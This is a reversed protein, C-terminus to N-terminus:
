PQKERSADFTDAWSKPSALDPLATKYQNSLTQWERALRLHLALSRKLLDRFLEPDRKYWSASTGDAASVLASDFQSLLWWKLDLHAINAEPHERALDRMPMVQRFAGIAMTKVRGITGKPATPARGKRPPKKRRAPPFADLDAKSQSDAYNKRLANLEPLRHLVDRHMREPGELIDEIAMLGMEAPSYQMSFLHKVQTEFSEFILRGGREYPSHLLAAVIRNRRHFYAQWDITDDKEHWPVHWVAMGPLTVTPFGAEGARLGFEADDWKIFMPLSLGIERIVRTPILCMWWGNYDVDIRRHLWTTSQLSRRSFNHGHVTNPAAGWFWRYKAVTEGYAHMVSRDFLSFMQGGVITASKALDAFAVARLIGEPECVVDDDLLLVYDADGKVTAEDMSRSFGGSGGLNGQVIYRLKPGLAKAATEYLEHDSVRQTGQDVVYIEDLVALVDPEQSLSILQDVCFEPRNYTTIGISVKGPKLKETEVAWVAEHLTADEGGAQLDFWYWGGDIFPKLPLDFVLTQPKRSDFVASDARQVHGKATSRSVVVRGQGSVRMVLRVAEFPTWRRWYSAPFANFYTGFTLRREPRVIATGEIVRGHGSIDEVNDPNEDYSTPTTDPLEGEELKEDDAAAAPTNADIATVGGVYLPRIDLEQDARLITRHVIRMGALPDPAETAAVAEQSATATDPNDTTEEAPAQVTDTLLTGLTRRYSGTVTYGVTRGVGIATGPM